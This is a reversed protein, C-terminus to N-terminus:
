TVRRFDEKCWFSGNFWGDHAECVLLKRMSSNPVYLKNERFLYGDLRYFKGFAVKDCAGYVSAFDNDNAYM